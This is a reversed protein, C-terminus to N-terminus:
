PCTSSNKEASIKQAFPFPYDLEATDKHWDQYQLEQLQTNLSRIALLNKTLMENLEKQPKLLNKEADTPRVDGMKAIYPINRFLECWDMGFGLLFAEKDIELGVFVQPISFNERDQQKDILVMCAVSNAGYTNKFEDALTQLTTGTDLVDDVLVLNKAGLPVKPAAKISLTGSSKEDIYSSASTTSFQFRFTPHNTKLFNYLKSFFPLAGDLIPILLPNEINSDVLQQALAQIRQDIAVEVLVGYSTHELPILTPTIRQEIDAETKHIHRLQQIIVVNQRELAEITTTIEHEQM